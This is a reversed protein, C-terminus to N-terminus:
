NDCPVIANKSRSIFGELQALACPRNSLVSHGTGTFVSLAVEPWQRQVAKAWRLPTIADFQGGVVAVRKPVQEPWDLPEISDRWHQCIQGRWGTAMFPQLWPYSEFGRQYDEDKGLPNDRCDVAAYASGSIHGSQALSLQTFRELPKRHRNPVAAIADILLPWRHRNYAAAFASNLFREPTLWVTEPWGDLTVVLDLPRHQLQRLSARLLEVFNKDNLPLGNFHNRWVDLCGAETRCAQALQQISGGLLEPASLVGGFGPPYASDLVMSELGQSGVLEIALRSGYSVGLVHWHEVGMTQVLARIDAANQRTGYANINLTDSQNICRLLAQDPNDIRHQRYPTAALLKRRARQYGLCIDGSGRRNLLILDRKLGAQEAFGLWHQMGSVSFDLRYGPGGQLYVLPERSKDNGLYQVVRVPLRDVNNPLVLTACQVQKSMAPDCDHQLIQYDEAISGSSGDAKKDACGVTVLVLTLLVAVFGARRKALMLLVAM